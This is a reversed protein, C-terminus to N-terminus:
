SQVGPECQPWPPRSLQRHLPSMHAWARSNATGSASGHRRGDTGDAVQAEAASGEPNKVLERPLRKRLGSVPIM